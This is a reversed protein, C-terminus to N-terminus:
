IAGYPRLKLLVPCHTHVVQFLKDLTASSQADAPISGAIALRLDLARVVVGGFWVSNPKM